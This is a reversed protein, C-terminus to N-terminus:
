TEAVRDWDNDSLPKLKIKISYPRPQSGQVKAKVIGPEVDVSLVQGQRAYARGRTLRAGMGFSELVHVWRKSWWTEGIAGRESKTKIGGAVRRPTSESYYDWEYDRWRGM